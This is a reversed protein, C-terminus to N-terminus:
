LFHMVLEVALFIVAFGVLSAFALLAIVGYLNKLNYPDKM